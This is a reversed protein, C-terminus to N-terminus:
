FTSLAKHQTSCAHKRLLKVASLFMVTVPHLGHHAQALAWYHSRALVNYECYRSFTSGAAVTVHIAAATGLCSGITPIITYIAWFRWSIGINAMCIEKKFYISKKQFINNVWWGRKRQPGLIKMSSGETQLFKNKSSNYAALLASEFCM